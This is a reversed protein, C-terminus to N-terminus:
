QKSIFYERIRFVFLNFLFEFVTTVNIFSKRSGKLGLFHTPIEGIKFRYRRAQIMMEADIFWNDSRLTLMELAKRTFIKPKANVDRVNLGPFFMKFLMNYGLSLAKRVQGDGRVIRYTMVLDFQKEQIERYVMILDNVPMQGDGDIVAVFHGCAKGLGTRMDWGMMGEKPRAVSVIRPNNKALEAVVEPTVDKTGTHYNGVLVLEYDHIGHGELALCVKEVFGSASEGAKYCLVVVSLEPRMM